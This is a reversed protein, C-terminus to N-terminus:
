GLKDSFRKLFEEFRKPDKNMIDVIHEHVGHPIPGLQDGAYFGAAGAFLLLSPLIANFVSVVSWTLGGDLLAMPLLVGGTILPGWQFFPRAIKAIIGTVGSSEGLLTRGGRMLRGITYGLLATWGIPTVAGIHPVAELAGMFITGIIGGEVVGDGVFAIGDQLRRVEARREAIARRVKGAKRAAESAIRDLRELGDEDDDPPNLDIDGEGISHPSLDDNLRLERGLLRKESVKPIDLFATDRAGFLRTRAQGQAEPTRTDPTNM